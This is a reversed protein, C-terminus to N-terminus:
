ESQKAIQPIKDAVGIVIRLTGDEKDETDEGIIGTVEEYNRIATNKAGKDKDQKINKILEDAVEPKTLKAELIDGFHERLSQYEKTKEIRAAHMTDAFGAAKQAETKNMGKVNHALYYKGVRTQLDPKKKVSYNKPM